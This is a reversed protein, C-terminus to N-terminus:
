RPCYSRLGFRRALLVLVRARWSPRRVSVPEGADRLRQERFAAQREEAAHLRRYIASLNEDPEYEALAAYIAAM